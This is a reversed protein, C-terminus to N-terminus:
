PVEPGSAPLKVSVDLPDLLADDDSRHHGPDAPERADIDDLGAVLRRIPGPGSPRQRRSRAALSRAHVEGPVPPADALRGLGVWRRDRHNGAPLVLFDIRTFAMSIDLWRAPAQLIEGWTKLSIPVDWHGDVDGRIARVAAITLEVALLGVAWRIIRRPWGGLWRGPSETLDAPGNPDALSAAPRAAIGAALGGIGFVIVTGLSPDFIMAIGEALPASLRPISYLVVFSAGAGALIATSARGLVGSWSRPRRASVPDRSANRLDEDVWIATLLCGALGPLSELAALTLRDFVIPRAVAPALRLANQVAELALLVMYPFIGHVQGVFLISSLVVLVVTARSRWNPIPGPGSPRRRAPVLGLTLGVMGLTALLPVVNLLMASHTVAMAGGIRSSREAQLDDALELASFIVGGLALSRWFAERSRGPKRFGPCRSAFQRGIMLGMAVVLTLVGLGVAHDRDPLGGVWADRSRRAVDFVFATGMVVVVLDWLRVQLPRAAEIPGARM